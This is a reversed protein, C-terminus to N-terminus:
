KIVGGAEQLLIRFSPFFPLRGIHRVTRFMILTCLLNAIFFSLAAGISGYKSILCYNLGLNVVAGGSATLAIIKQRNFHVLFPTLLATMMWMSFGFAIWPIFRGARVFAATTMLGLVDGSFLSFLASLVCVGISLLLVKHYLRNLIDVGASKSLKEYLYPTWVNIIPVSLFLILSALNLAVGYLGAEDKGLSSDIFLVGSRRM